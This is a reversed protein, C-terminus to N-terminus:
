VIHNSKLMKAGNSLSLTIAPPSVLHAPSPPSSSTTTPVVGRQHYCTNTHSHQNSRAKNRWTCYCLCLPTKTCHHPSSPLWPFTPPNHPVRHTCHYWHVTGHTSTTASQSHTTGPVTHPQTHVGTHTCSATHAAPTLHRDLLGTLTHGITSLQCTFVRM